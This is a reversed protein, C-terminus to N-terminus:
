ELGAAIGIGSADATTIIVAMMPNILLRDKRNGVIWINSVFSELRM